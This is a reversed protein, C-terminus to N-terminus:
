PVLAPGLTAAETSPLSPSPPRSHRALLAIEWYVTPTLYLYPYPYTKPTPHLTYPIFHLTSPTCRFKIAEMHRRGGEEEM